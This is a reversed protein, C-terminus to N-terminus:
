LVNFCRCEMGSEQIEELHRRFTIDDWGAIETVKMELYQFGARKALELQEFDGCLGFRM